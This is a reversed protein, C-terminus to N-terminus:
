LIVEEVVELENEVTGTCEYKALGDYEEPGVFMEKTKILFDQEDNCSDRMKFVQSFNILKVKSLIDEGFHFSTCNDGFIENWIDDIIVFFFFLFFKLHPFL